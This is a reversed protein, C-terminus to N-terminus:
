KWFVAAGSSSAGSVPWAAGGAGAGVLCVDVAFAGVGWLRAVAGGGGVPVRRGPHKEWLRRKELVARLGLVPGQVSGSLLRHTHLPAWLLAHSRGCVQESGLAQCTCDGCVGLLPSDWMAPLPCCLSHWTSPLPRCPSHWAGTTLTGSPHGGAAQCVAWWGWVVRPRVEPRVGVVGHLDPRTSGM